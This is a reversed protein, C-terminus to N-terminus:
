YCLKPRISSMKGFALRGDRLWSIVRAFEYSAFRSVEAGTFLDWVIATSVKDYSVALRGDTNESINDANLIAINAKHKTLTRELAFTDHHLCYVLNKHAFLFFAATATCPYFPVLDPWPKPPETAGPDTVESLNLSPEKAEDVATATSQHRLLPRTPTSSSM